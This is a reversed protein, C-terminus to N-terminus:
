YPLCVVDPGGSHSPAIPVCSYHPRLCPLLRKFVPVQVHGELVRSPGDTPVHYSQSLSPDKAASDQVSVAYAFASMRHLLEFGDNTQVPPAWLVSEPTIHAADCRQMYCDAQTSLVFTDGQRRWTAMKGDDPDADGDSDLDNNHTVTHAHGAATIPGDSADTDQSRLSSSAEYIDRRPRDDIFPDACDYEDVGPPAAGDGCYTDSVQTGSICTATATVRMVSEHAPELEMAQGCVTAATSRTASPGPAQVTSDGDSASADNDLHMDCGTEVDAGVDSTGCTDICDMGVCCTGSDASTDVAATDIDVPSATGGDNGDDTAEASALRSPFYHYHHVSAFEHSIYFDKEGLLYTAMLQAPIIIKGCIALLSSSLMRAYEQTPDLDDADPKVQQRRMAALTLLRIITDTVGMKTSYNTAYMSKHSAVIGDSLVEVAANFPLVTSVAPNTPVRWKSDRRDVLSVLPATVARYNVASERYTGADLAARNRRWLSSAEFALRCWESSVFECPMDPVVRRLTTVLLPVVEKWNSESVDESKLVDAKCVDRLHGSIMTLVVGAADLAAKRYGPEVSRTDWYKELAESDVDGGVVAKVMDWDGVPKFTDLAVPRVLGVLIALNIDPVPDDADPTATATGAARAEREAADYLVRPYRAKCVVKGEHKVQCNPYHGHYSSVVGLALRVQAEEDFRQPDFPRLAPDPPPLNKIDAHCSYPEIPHEKRWVDTLRGQTSRPDYDGDTTYDGNTDKNGGHKEHWARVLPPLCCDVVSDLYAFLAKRAAEDQLRDRIWNVVMNSIYLTVHQHM